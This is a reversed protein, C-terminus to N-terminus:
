TTLSAVPMPWQLPPRRCSSLFFGIRLTMPGPNAITVLACFNITCMVQVFRVDQRCCLAVAGDQVPFLIAPNGAITTNNIKAGASDHLLIIALIRFNFWAKDFTSRWNYILEDVIVSCNLQTGITNLIICTDISLPELTNKVVQFAHARESIPM